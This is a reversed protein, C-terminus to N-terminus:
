YNYLINYYYINIKHRYLRFLKHTKNNKVEDDIKNILHENRKILEILLKDADKIDLNM